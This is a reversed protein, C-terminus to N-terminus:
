AQQSDPPPFGNQGPFDPALARANPMKVWLRVLKRRKEIEDFDEFSTRSHMVAYNNALLLDGPELMMDLRIEEKHIIEDFVDMAEIEVRSLPREQLEAGLEIYQRLYRTSLKGDHYSFVPAKNSSDRGLHAYYMPRYFVSLYEPYNELIENYVAGSSVLSTLGGSKAQRVCMLGFVDSLDTHYPLYLNTEYVRTEKKTIDGVNMVKGLLDGKLNQCVPTGLHLGIGYNIIDIDESDYSDIPLGRLLLFGKGNEMEEAYKELDNSLAHIPFDDKTFNPFSLGRAKVEALAADIMNIMSSSLHIMWSEDNSLDEGRWAAPGTLKEKLILSM